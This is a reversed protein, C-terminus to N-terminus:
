RSTPDIEWSRVTSLEFSTVGVLETRSCLLSFLPPKIRQCQLHLLESRLHFRVELVHAERFDWLLSKLLSIFWRHMNKRSLRFCCKQNMCLTNSFLVSFLINPDLLCATVSSNLFNCSLFSIFTRQKHFLTLTILVPLIQPASCTSRM